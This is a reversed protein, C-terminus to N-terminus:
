LILPSLSYEQQYFYQLQIFSIICEISFYDTLGFISNSNNKRSKELLLSLNKIKNRDINKFISNLHEFYIKIFKDISEQKKLIM